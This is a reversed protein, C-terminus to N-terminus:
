CAIAGTGTLDTITGLFIKTRPLWNLDLRPQVYIKYSLQKAPKTFHHFSTTDCQNETSLHRRPPVASTVQCM